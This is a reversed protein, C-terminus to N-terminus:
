PPHTPELLFPPETGADTVFRYRRWTNGDMPGIALTCGQSRLRVCSRSLVETAAVASTAQFGGIAGITEGPLSPVQTWWLLAEAAGDAAAVEIRADATMPLQSMAADWCIRARPRARSVMGSQPFRIGSYSRAAGRPEPKRFQGIVDRSKEGRGYHRGD